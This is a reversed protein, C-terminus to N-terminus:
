CMRAIADLLQIARQHGAVWVLLDSGLQGGPNPQRFALDAGFPGSEHAALTLGVDQLEDQGLSLVALNAAHQGPEAVFDHREITDRHARDADFPKRAALAARERAVLNLQEPLHGVSYGYRHGPEEFAVGLRVAPVIRITAALDIVTAASVVV